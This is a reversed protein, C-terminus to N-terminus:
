RRISRIIVVPHALTGGILGCFAGVLAVLLAFGVGFGLWTLSNVASETAALYLAASVVFSEYGVLATVAGVLAGIEISRHRAWCLGVVMYYPTLAMAAVVPVPADADRYGYSGVAMLISSAVAPLYVRSGGLGGASGVWRLRVRWSRESTILRQRLLLGVGGLAWALRSPGSRIENVEATLADMWAKMSRDARATLVRLVWAAASGAARDVDDHISSV